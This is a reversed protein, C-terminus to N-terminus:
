GRRSNVEGHGVVSQEEFLKGPKIASANRGDCYRQLAQQSNHNHHHGTAKFLNQVVDDGNVDHEKAQRSHAHKYKASAIAPFGPAVEKVNRTVRKRSEEKDRRAAHDRKTDDILFRAVGCDTEPDHHQAQRRIKNPGPQPLTSLTALVNENRTKEHKKTSSKNASVKSVM